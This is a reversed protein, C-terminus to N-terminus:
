TPARRPCSVGVSAERGPPRLHYLAHGTPVGLERSTWREGAQVTLDLSEFLHLWDAHSHQAHPHGAELNVLADLTRALPGPRQGAVSVDELVLVRQRAVRAAERLVARPDPCHHLVFALLVVDFHADPFPLSGPTLVRVLGFHRALHRATPQAILRQGWAGPHPPVDALTVAWGRRALLAGTHGTGAGFDLLSGGPPLHGRLREAVRRAHPWGVPGYM